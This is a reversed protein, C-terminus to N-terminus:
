TEDRGGVTVGALLQLAARLVMSDGLDFALKLADLDSREADTLKLGVFNLRKDIVGRM